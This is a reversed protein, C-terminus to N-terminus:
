VARTGDGHFEGQQSSGLENISTQCFFHHYYDYAHLTIGCMSNGGGNINEEDQFVIALQIIDM